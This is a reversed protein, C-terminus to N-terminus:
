MSRESRRGAKARGVELVRELVDLAVPKVLHDDFGAEHTARRDQSQGHGTLAVLYLDAEPVQKRARRAVELGSIDPLGLDVLAIPPRKEVITELAEEGCGATLVTYGRLGLLEAMLLRNDDDDEVVLVVREGSTIPEPDGNAPAEAQPLRVTFTSGKGPGPSAVEVDGGHGRTLARALSLGLGLGSTRSYPQTRAAQFFPEFIADTMDPQIGRGEDIVRVLVDNGDKRMALTVTKGAPSYAVANLLLNVEVQQLRAQDGLVWLPEEPVDVEILVGAKEADFRVADLAGEVTDRMDMLGCHLDVGDRRTRSVDLLDDLLRAMQQTQRQLVDLPQRQRVRVDEDVSLRETAAVVGMLPNRLEHSLTAIFRDRYEVARHIRAEANKAQTVDRALACSGVVVGAEDRMPSLTLAVDVLTGDKCRRVTERPELPEGRSVRALMEEVEDRLEDPVIILISRGVAEEETYGFLATAGANWSTIAGNLDEGIVADATSGLISTLFRLQGDRRRRETVDEVCVVAGDVQPGARRPEVRVAFHRGDRLSLERADGRGHTLARGLMEDFADASADDLARPASLGRGVDDETLGLLAAGEPNVRRLRLDPGLLALGVGACGLVGEVDAGLEGVEALKRRGDANVTLLEETLAQLEEKAHQLETRATRHKEVADTVVAGAEELEVTAQQLRERTEELDHELLRIYDSSAASAPLPEDGRTEIAPSPTASPRLSVHYDVHDPSSGVIPSVSLLLSEKGAAGEVRVDAYSTTAREAAARRLAAALPDRLTPHVLDLVSTSIRGPRLNLWKEAGTFCHILRFEGDVLFSPPLHTSLLHDYLRLLRPDVGSSRSSPKLSVPAPSSAPPRAGEAAKRYVMHVPHSREFSDGQGLPSEGSGLVLYGGPRLAFRFLSAVHAQAASRLSSVLDRCCVLELRTFPADSLVDHRAFLIMERLARAVRYASEGERRFYRERRDPAIPEMAADSFRGESARQISTDHADTAFIKVAHPAGRQDLAERFLIALSYAEEGGACGPMWVRITEGPPTADILQPVLEAELLDWVAEDRFFATHGILLERYLADREEPDTRLESLYADVDVRATLRSKVRRLLANSRYQLFDIGYIRRLLGLVREGDGLRDAADAKAPMELPASAVAHHTPTRLAV